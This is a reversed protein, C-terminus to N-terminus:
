LPLAAKLAAIDSGDADLLETDCGLQEVLAHIEEVRTDSSPHTSLFEPTGGDKGLEILKEFFGAAGDAAYATECLYKVSYEDAETEDTRSFQMAVLSEAIQVALDDSADGLVFSLLTQIGYIETLQQTSHRRAAHAMEHGMVGALEDEHDLFAIIGTYVYIYGGPACFANLTKPDDVIHLEWPFEDDHDVLGSALISDRIANLRNYADPFQAESLLPYNKPDAEIEAALQAGLDIDDQVTFLNVGGGDGSCAALIAFIM